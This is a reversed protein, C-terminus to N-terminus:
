LDLNGEMTSEVEEIKIGHAAAHYVMATTMCSTLETLAYETYFFVGKKMLNRHVDFWFLVEESVKLFKFDQM